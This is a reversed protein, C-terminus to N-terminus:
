FCKKRKSDIIDITPNFKDVELRACECSDEVFFYQFEDNCNQPTMETIYSALPVELDSFNCAFSSLPLFIFSLAIKFKM